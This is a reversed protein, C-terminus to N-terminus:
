SSKKTAQEAPAADVDSVVTQIFYYGDPVDQSYLESTDENVCTGQHCYIYFGDNDDVQVTVTDDAKVVNNFALAFGITVAGLVQLCRNIFRNRLQSETRLKWRLPKFGENAHLEVQLAQVQTGRNRLSVQEVIYEAVQAAYLRSDTANRIAEGNGRTNLSFGVWYRSKGQKIQVASQDTPRESNVQYITAMVRTDLDVISSINLARVTTNM